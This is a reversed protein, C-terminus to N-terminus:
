WPASLSGPLFRGVERILVSILVGPALVRPRADQEQSREIVILLCHNRRLISASKREGKNGVRLWIRNCLPINTSSPKPLLDKFKPILYKAPPDRGM